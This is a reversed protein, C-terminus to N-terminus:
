GGGLRSVADKVMIVKSHARGNRQEYLHLHESGLHQERIALGRRYLPEAAAHEAQKELVCALDLLAEAVELHDSRRALSLTVCSSLHKEHMALARRYLPEAAAYDGSMYLTYALRESAKAVAMHDPGLRAEDIKLVRRYLPEAAAYDRMLHLVGALIRTTERHVLRVTEWHDSEWQKELNELAQRLLPEAAAYDSKEHYVQVVGYMGQVFHVGTLVDSKSYHREAAGDEAEQAMALSELAIWDIEEAM